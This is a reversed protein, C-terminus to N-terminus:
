LLDYFYFVGLIVIPALLTGGILQKITHRNLSLRAWAVLPILLILAIAAQGYVLSSIVALASINTLHHSIKWVYSITAMVATLLTTAVINATLPQGIQDTSALYWQWLGIIVLPGIIYLRERKVRRNELTDDLAFGRKM